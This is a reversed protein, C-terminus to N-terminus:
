LEGERAQSPSGFRHWSVSTVSATLGTIVARSIIVVVIRLSTNLWIIPEEGQTYATTVDAFARSDGRSFM